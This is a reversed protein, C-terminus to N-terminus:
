AAALVRWLEASPWQRIMLSCLLSVCVSSLVPRTVKQVNGYRTPQAHLAGGQRDPARKRGYVSPDNSHCYPRSGGEPVEEGRHVLMATCGLAVQQRSAVRVFQPLVCPPCKHGGLLRCILEKLLQKIGRMFRSM